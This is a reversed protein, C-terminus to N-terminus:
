CSPPPPGKWRSRRKSSPCATSDATEWIDYDEWTGPRPAAARLSSGDNASKLLNPSATRSERSPEAEVIPLSRGLKARCMRQYLAFDHLTMSDWDIRGSPLRPPSPPSPAPLRPAPYLRSFEGPSLGAMDNSQAPSVSFDDDSSSSTGSLTLDIVVKSQLPLHSHNEERPLPSTVSQEMSYLANLALMDPRAQPITPERLSEKMKELNAQITWHSAQLSTLGRTTAHRREEPERQEESERQTETARDTESPAEAGKEKVSSLAELESQVEVEKEATPSSEPERQGEVEEVMDQPASATKPFTNSADPQLQVSPKKLPEQDPLEVAEHDLSEPNPLELGGPAAASTTNQTGSSTSLPSPSVSTGDGKNKKPLFDDDSVGERPRKQVSHTELERERNTQTIPNLLALDPSDASFLYPYQARMSEETEWIAEEVTHNRWLVRVLPVRQNRLEKVERALVQVPKEEFSLSDDLTVAGEPKRHTPDSEYHRLMSVHFVNHIRSFEPPLELQYAVPGVRATVPYSGIFRPSLKGRKGFRLVKRWPSIIVRKSANEPVWIRRQTCQLLSNNLCM